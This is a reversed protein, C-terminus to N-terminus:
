RLYSIIRKQSWRGFKVSTKECGAQAVSIEVVVVSITVPQYIYLFIVSINIPKNGTTEIIKYKTSCSEVVPELVWSIESDVSVVVISVVVVDSIVVSELVWSVTVSLEVDDTVV